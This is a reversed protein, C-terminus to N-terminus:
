QKDLETILPSSIPPHKMSASSTSPVTALLPLRFGSKSNATGGGHVNGADDEDIDEDSSEQADAMEGDPSGTAQAEFVGLGLTQSNLGMGPFSIILLDDIIDKECKSSRNLTLETVAGMARVWLIREIIRSCCFAVASTSVMEIRRADTGQMDEDEQEISAETPDLTENARKLEPLFAELRALVSHCSVHRWEQAVVIVVKASILYISQRRSPGELRRPTVGLRREKDDDAVSM